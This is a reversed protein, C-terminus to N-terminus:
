RLEIPDPWPRPDKWTDRTWKHDPKPQVAAPLIDSVKFSGTRKPANDAYMEWEIDTDRLLELEQTWKATELRGLAFRV